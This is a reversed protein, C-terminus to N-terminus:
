TKPPKLTAYEVGPLPWSAVDMPASFSGKPLPIVRRSVNQWHSRQRSPTWQKTHGSSSGLILRGCGLRESYLGAIGSRLVTAHALLPRRVHLLEKRGSTASECCQLKKQVTSVNGCTGSVLITFRLNRQM